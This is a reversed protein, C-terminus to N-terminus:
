FKYQTGTRFNQNFNEEDMSRSDPNKPKQDLNSGSDSGYKADLKLNDRFPNMQFTPQIKAGKFYDTHQIEVTKPQQKYGPPIDKVTEIKGDQHHISVQPKRELHPWLYGGQIMNVSLDVHDTGDPIKDTRGGEIVSDKIVKGDADKYTVLIGLQSTNQITGPPQPPEESEPEKTNTAIKVSNDGIKFQTSPQVAQAAPKDASKAEPTKIPQQALQIPNPSNIQAAIQEPAETPHDFILKDGYGNLTNTKDGTKVDVKIDEGPKTGKAWEGHTERSLKVKEMGGPLEKSEGPKLPASQYDGKDGKYEVRVPVNGSNTVTTSEAHLPASILLLCLALILQKM